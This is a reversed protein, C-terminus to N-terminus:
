TWLHRRIKILRILMEEDEADYAAEIRNCEDLIRSTEEREENSRSRLSALFGDNGETRRRECLASWGSRIHPDIRHPRDEKWWTYLQVIERATEAQKPSSHDIGHEDIDPAALTMEWRLYDLGAEPM